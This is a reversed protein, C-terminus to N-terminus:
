SNCCVNNKWVWLYLVRTSFKTISGNQFPSNVPRGNRRPSSFACQMKSVWNNALHMDYATSQSLVQGTVKYRSRCYLLAVPNVYLTVSARHALVLYETPPRKDVFTNIKCVYSQLSALEVCFQDPLTSWSYHNENWKFFATCKRAHLSSYKASQRLNYM